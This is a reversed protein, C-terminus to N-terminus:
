VIVGFNVFRMEFDSDAILDKLGVKYDRGCGIVGALCECEGNVTEVFWVTSSDLHTVEVTMM